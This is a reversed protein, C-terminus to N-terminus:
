VMSSYVRGVIIITMHLFLAGNLIAFLLSYNNVGKVRFSLFFWLLLAISNFIILVRVVLGGVFPFITFLVMVSVLSAIWTIFFRRITEEQFFSFLSPIRGSTYDKRHRLLVLWFHPIQWLVMLTLLLFPEFGTKSGGGALWGIYPPLAGSVAGPVIAMVTYQKLVTYLGNYIFVASVAATLPSGAGSVGYLVFLGAALLLVAQIAAQLLSVNNNPLPRYKTREMYADTHREQISNLTAAGTALLFVGIGTLFARLSVSGDVLFYGFLASYGVLLCLSAKALYIRPRLDVMLQRVFSM